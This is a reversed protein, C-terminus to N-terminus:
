VELLVRVPIQGGGTHRNDVHSHLPCGNGRPYVLSRKDM